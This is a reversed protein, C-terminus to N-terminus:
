IRKTVTSEDWEDSEARRSFLRVYAFCPLCLDLTATMFAAAAMLGALLGGTLTAGQEFAIALLVLWVAAAGGAVRRPTGCSPLPESGLIPALLESYVVDFPHRGWIAGVLAFPVLALFYVPEALWVGFLILASCLGPAVRAPLAIEHFHRREDYRASM